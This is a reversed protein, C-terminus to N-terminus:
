PKQFADYEKMSIFFPNLVLCVPRPDGSPLTDRTDFFNIIVDQALGDPMIYFWVTSKGPLVDNGELYFNKPEFQDPWELSTQQYNIKAAVPDKGESEVVRLSIIKRLFDCNIAHIKHTILAQQYGLFLLSNLSATFSRREYSANTGRFLPTVITAMVAIIAIVVMIEILTFARSNKM